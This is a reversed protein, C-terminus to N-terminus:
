DHYVRLTVKFDNTVWHGDDIFAGRSEDIAEIIVMLSEGSGLTLRVPKKESAIRELAELTRNSKAALKGEIVFREQVGGIAQFTPDAGVRAKQAYRYKLGRSLKEFGAGDTKFVFGGLDCLM